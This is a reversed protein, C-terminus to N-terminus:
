NVEFLSGGSAVSAKKKRCIFVEALLNALVQRVNQNGLRKRM